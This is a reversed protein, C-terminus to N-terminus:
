SQSQRTIQCHKVQSVTLVKRSLEASSKAAVLGTVTVQTAPTGSGDPDAATLNVAVAYNVSKSSTNSVSVQVWVEDHYKGSGHIAYNVCSVTSASATSASGGCASVVSALVVAALPAGLWKSSLASM